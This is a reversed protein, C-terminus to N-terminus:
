TTVEPRPPLGARCLEIARVFAASGAKLLVYEAQRMADARNKGRAISTSTEAHTVTWLKPNQIDKHVGPSKEIEGGSLIAGLFKERM